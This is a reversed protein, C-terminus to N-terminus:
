AKAWLSTAHLAIWAIAGADPSPSVNVQKGVVISGGSAQWGLRTFHKGIRQGKADRLTPEPAKL